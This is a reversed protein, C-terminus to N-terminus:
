PQQTQKDDMTWVSIDDPTGAQGDPGVSILDYPKGNRGPASYRLAQTWADELKKDPSMIKSALFTNWTDPFNGNDTKYVDLGNKVVGLTIKTARIRAKDGQGVFNFAAVAMLIGIIVLVLTIELLSFGARATRPRFAVAATSIPHQQILRM